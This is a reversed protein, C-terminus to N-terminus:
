KKLTQSGISANFNNLTKGKAVTQSNITTSFDTFSNKHTDNSKKVCGVVTNKDDFFADKSAVKASPDVARNQIKSNFNNFFAMINRGFSRLKAMRCLVAHNHLQHTSQIKKETKGL